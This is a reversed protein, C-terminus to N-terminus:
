GDPPPMRVKRERPNPSPWRAPMPEHSKKVAPDITTAIIAVDNPPYALATSVSSSGTQAFTNATASMTTIDPTFVIPDVATARTCDTMTTM